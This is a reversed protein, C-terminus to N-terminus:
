ENEDIFGASGPGANKRNQRRKQKRQKKKEKKTKRKMKKEHKRCKVAIEKTPECLTPDQGPKLTLIRTANGNPCASTDWDVSKDYKCKNKNKMKRCPKTKNKEPCAPNQGPLLPFSIVMTNTALNCEGIVRKGYQCKMNVKNPKCRKTKIKFPECQQDPGPILPKRIEM